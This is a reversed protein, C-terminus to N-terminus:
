YYQKPFCFIFYHVYWKCLREEDYYAMCRNASFFLITQELEGLVNSFEMQQKYKYIKDQIDAPLTNM